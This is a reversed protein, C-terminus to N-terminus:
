EAQRWYDNDTTELQVSWVVQFSFLYPCPNSGRRGWYYGWFWEVGDPLRHKWKFNRLDRKGRLTYTERQAPMIDVKFVIPYKDATSIDSPLQFVDFGLRFFPFDCKLRLGSFRQETLLGWRFVSCFRKGCDPCWDVSGCLLKSEPVSFPQCQIGCGKGSGGYRWM